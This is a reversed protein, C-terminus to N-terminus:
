RGSSDEGLLPRAAVARIWEPLRDVFGAAGLFDMDPQPPSPQAQNLEVTQVLVNAVHVAVLPSFAASSISAPHHHLAVAEVIPAPLGWIALLGAGLDAHDVGLLELEAQWVEIKKDTASQLAQQFSDPLNAALLLKGFDHLLGAAFAQGIVENGASECEAICQACRATSYSHNWLRDISFGPAILGDFYSFTHALLILSKTTEVGLYAVAESPRSVQVQLGLTASNVLQLLKATMAPDCAIKQGVDDLSAAPSHLLRVVEFYLEPPSPVKTLTAMIEQVGESPLWTELSLAREVACLVAKVDTPQLLVHHPTGLCRIAAHEDGLEGRIFRPLRPQLRMVENLFLVGSTGPLRWDAIVAVFEKQRLAGLAEVPTKVCDFEYNDRPHTAGGTRLETWFTQDEGVVLVRKPM